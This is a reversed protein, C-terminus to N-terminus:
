DQRPSASADDPRKSPAKARHLGFLGFLEKENLLHTLGEDSIEGVVEKFLERKEELIRQIREEVTGQTILSAVFVNKTQGIRHTRDEAQAMTAPNWWSDFHVVYNAATLTLGLGGAKLSILLVRVAEDEDFRQLVAERQKSTLSGQYLLPKFRQLRPQILRLTKEPYQSFIVMKEGTEDLNQLVDEVYELKCSEGSAADINCIQKLQSILAMVHTVTVTKGRERLAIVGTREAVEYVARQRAGLELLVKDHTKSPLDKLVANKTRRLTFPTITTKVYFPSEGEYGHFLTPKLYRFITTLDEVRNELPTGSLGWRLRGGVRNVARFTQTSRNKIRQAEDLIVLDFSLPAAEGELDLVDEKLTDYTVLDVQSPRAWLERRAAAAGQIKTTRLEPAWEAFKGSWDTLVSKPCVVLSKDIVRARFLLRVAAIAQISKGLGMEDALLASERELLFAVGDRQFPFLAKGPPFALLGQFNFPAEPYLSPLILYFPHIAGGQPSKGGRIPWARTFRGGTSAGAYGDQFVCGEVTAASLGDFLNGLLAGDAEGDAESGQLCPQALALADAEAYTLILPRPITALNGTVEADGTIAFRPERTPATPFAIEYGEVDVPAERHRRRPTMKARLRALYSPGGGQPRRTAM